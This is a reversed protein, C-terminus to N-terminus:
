IAKLYDSSVYGTISGNQVLLWKTGNKVTYYGWCKVVVDKYLLKIINNDTMIGPIYRLNLASATVRYDGALKKDFSEATAVAKSTESPTTASKLKIAENVASQVKNYDYGAEKLKKKREDGNGFEGNLVKNVVENIPLLEKKEEVKETPTETKETTIPKIIYDLDVNGNIGNVKGTESFQHITAKALLNADPNARWDAIWIVADSPIGSGNKYWSKYYDVNCYVGTKYGRAKVADCFAKTCAICSDATHNYAPSKRYKNYDVTDYEFDYFVITSKPLGAKEVTDCALNAEIIADQPTTAYSFHYVAPIDIGNAKAQMVYTNFQYDVTGRGYGTRPIIYNIGASKVNKFNISGNNFSIDIGKIKEM